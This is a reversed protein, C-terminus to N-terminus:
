ILKKYSDVTAYAYKRHLHTSKKANRVQTAHSNHRASLGKILVGPRPTFIVGVVCGVVMFGDGGPGDGGPSQSGM